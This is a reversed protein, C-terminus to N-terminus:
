VEEHSEVSTDVILISELVEKKLKIYFIKAHNLIVLGHDHKIMDHTDKYEVEELNDTYKIIDIKKVIKKIIKELKLKDIEITVGNEMLPLKLNVVDNLFYSFSINTDMIVGECMVPLIAEYMNINLGSRKSLFKNLLKINEYTTMKKMEYLENNFMIYQTM